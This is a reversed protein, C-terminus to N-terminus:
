LISWDEEKPTSTSYNNNRTSSGITVQDRENRLTNTTAANYITAQSYANAPCTLKYGAGWQVVIYEDANPVIKRMKDLVKFKFVDLVKEGISRQEYDGYLHSLIVKKLVVQDFRLALAEIFGYEKKTLQIKENNIFFERSLTKLMINGYVINSNAHGHFRAVANKITIILEEPPVPKYLYYDAGFKLSSIKTKLSREATVAIIPINRVVNDSRIRQILIEGDTVGGEHAEAKRDSMHLDVLIISFNENPSKLRVWAETITSCTICHMGASRVITEILKAQVDCNEVLLVKM